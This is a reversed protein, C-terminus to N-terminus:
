KNRSLPSPLSFSLSLFMQTHSDEVGGVPCRARLGPVRSSWSDFRRHGTARLGASLGSLWVLWPVIEPAGPNRYTKLATVTRGVPPCQLSGAEWAPHAPRGPRSPAGRRPGGVPTWESDTDGCNPLGTGLRLCPGELQSGAGTRPARARGMRLKGQLVLAPQVTPGGEGAPGRPRPCLWFPAQTTTHTTNPPRSGVVSPVAGRHEEPGPPRVPSLSVGDAGSRPGM